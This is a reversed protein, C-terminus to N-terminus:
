ETVVLNPLVLLLSPAGTPGFISLSVIYLNAQAAGGATHTPVSLAARLSFQQLVLPSVATFDCGTDLYCRIPVPPPVPQGTQVLAATRMDNLGVQGPVTPGDGSLPYMFHPMATQAPIPSSPTGM